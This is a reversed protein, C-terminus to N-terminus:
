AKEIAVHVQRVRVEGLHRLCHADLAKADLRRLVQLSGNLFKELVVPRRKQIDEGGPLLQDHRWRCGEVLRVLEPHEHEFCDEVSSRLLEDVQCLHIQRMLAGSCSHSRWKRIAKANPM